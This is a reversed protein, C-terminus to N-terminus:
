KLDTNDSLLKLSTRTLSIFMNDNSLYNDSDKVDFKALRGVTLKRVFELEMFGSLLMCLTDSLSDYIVYILPVYRQCLHDLNIVTKLAANLFQSYVEFVPNSLLNDTRNM